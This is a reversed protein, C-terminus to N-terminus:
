NNPGSVMTDTEPKKVAPSVFSIITGKRSKKTENKYEDAVERFQVRVIDGIAIEDLSRKHELKVNKDIPLLMEYETGKQGDVLYTIAIYDKSISTVEGQIEKNDATTRIPGAGEKAQEAEASLNLALVLAAGALFFAIKKALACGRM